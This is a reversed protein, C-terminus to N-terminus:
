PTEATARLRLLILQALDRNMSERLRQEQEAQGLVGEPDFLYDRTLTLTQEPIQFDNGRGQVWYRLHTFIEYESVQANRGVSLARRGSRLDQIHLEATAEGLPVLMVGAGNLVLQLDIFLPDAASLGTIATRAMEPPVDTGGRLQFGCALLLLSLMLVLAMQGSRFPWPGLGRRDM